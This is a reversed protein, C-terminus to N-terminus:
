AISSPLKDLKGSVNCMEQIDSNARSILDERSDSEM